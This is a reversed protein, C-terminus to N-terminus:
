LAPRAREAGPQWVGPFIAACPETTNLLFPSIPSFKFFFYTFLSGLLTLSSTSLALSM